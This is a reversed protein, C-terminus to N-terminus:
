DAARTKLSFTRQMVVCCLNYYCKDTLMDPDYDTEHQTYEDDDDFEACPLVAHSYAYRIPFNVIESCQATSTNRTPAPPTCPLPSTPEPTPERRRNSPPASRGKRRWCTLVHQATGNQCPLCGSTHNQPLMAPMM